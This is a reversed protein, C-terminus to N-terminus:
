FSASLTVAIGSDPYADGAIRFRYDVSARIAAKGTSVITSATPGTDLRSADRQAGGWAGAGIAFRMDDTSVLPTKVTAAGDVFGTAYDGGVYGAQLYGEAEVGTAIERRPLGTSVFAAPRVDTGSRRDTARLEGHLTLPVGRALKLAVGAAAEAEGDASLARSARGYAQPQLSSGPALSYRIVAGAQDAGYTAPVAGTFQGGGTGERVLLWADGSWRQDKRQPASRGLMPPMADRAIWGAPLMGHGLGPPTSRAGAGSEKSFPSVYPPVYSLAAAYLIQHNASIRSRAFQGSGSAGFVGSGITRAPYEGAQVLGARSGSEAHLASVQRAPHSVGALRPARAPTSRVAGEEAFLVEPLSAPFPSEWTGARIAVWCSLVAMMAILPRGAGSRAETM